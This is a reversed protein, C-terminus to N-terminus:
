LLIVLRKAREIQSNSPVLRLMEQPSQLVALQRVHQLRLYRQEPQASRKSQRLHHEIASRSRLAISHERRAGGACPLPPEDNSIGNNFRMNLPKNGSSPVHQIRLRYQLGVYMVTAACGGQSTKKTQGRRDVLMTTRRETLDGPRRVHLTSLEAKKRTNYTNVSNHAAAFRMVGRAPLVNEHRDARVVDPFPAHARVLGHGTDFCDHLYLPVEIGGIYDHLYRLLPVSAANSKM